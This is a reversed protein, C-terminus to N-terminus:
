GVEIIKLRVKAARQERDFCKKGNRLSELGNIKIKCM